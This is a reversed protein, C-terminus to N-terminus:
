FPMHIHLGSYINHARASRKLRGNGRLPIADTSQAIHCVHMRARTDLDLHPGLLQLGLGGRWCVLLGGGAWWGWVKQITSINTSIHYPCHNIFSVPSVCYLSYRHKKVENTQQVLQTRTPPQQHTELHTRPCTETHRLVGFWQFWVCVQVSLPHLSRRRPWLQSVGVIRGRCVYVRVCVFVCARKLIKGRSLQLVLNFM